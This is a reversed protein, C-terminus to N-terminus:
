VSSIPSRSFKTVAFMECFDREVHWRAGIASVYTAITSFLSDIAPILLFSYNIKNVIINYFIINYYLM